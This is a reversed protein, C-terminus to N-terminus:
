GGLQLDPNGPLHDGLGGIHGGRPPQNRWVYFYDQILDLAIKNDRLLGRDVNAVRFILGPIDPAEWTLKIADGQNQRLISRDAVIRCKIMPRSVAAMERSVLANALAQNCCGPFRVIREIIQGDQISVNALSHAEASGDRYDDARNTFVVKVKNPVDLWSGIAFNQLEVGSAKTIHPVTNPDYDNRILKIKILGTAPDEYLVGDIQRLVDQIHNDLEVGKEIAISYGHTETMLTYQAAQFNSVDIIDTGAKGFKACLLDWLVNIPNSDDGVRAYTGLQPHLTQWSSVEFNYAPVSQSRGTYWKAGPTAGTATGGTLHYLGVSLYGRYGPIDIKDLGSYTKMRDGIYTTAVNSEDVLTQSSNGNLFEIWGGTYDDDSGAAYVKSTEFNGNGTLGTLDLNLDAINPTLLQDGAWMKYIKHKGYDNGFGIGLIMFMDMAYIQAVGNDPNAPYFRVPSHWALIPARVRCRGYILPIPAGEDTRPIKMEQLPGPKTDKAEWDLLRHYLYDGLLVAAAAIELWM